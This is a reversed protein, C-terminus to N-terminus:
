VGQSAWGFEQENVVALEEGPTFRGPRSNSRDVRHLGSTLSSCLQLDTGGILRRSKSLFVVNVATPTDRYIIAVCVAIATKL